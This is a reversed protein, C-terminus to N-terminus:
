QRRNLRARLENVRLEMSGIRQLLLENERRVRVRDAPSLQPDALTAENARQLGRMEEVTRVLVTLEVQLDERSPGAPNLQAPDIGAAELASIGDYMDEDGSRWRGRPEGAVSARPVRASGADSRDSWRGAARAHEIWAGREVEPEIPDSALREAVGSRALRLRWAEFMTELDLLGGGRLRQFSGLAVRVEMRREEGTAPDPRRVTLGITEGPDHSIIAARFETQTMPRGDVMEVVDGPRLARAADFGEIVGALAIGNEVTGGFQIGMAARPSNIFMERALTLLRARQEPSLTDTDRLVSLITALGIRDNEALAASAREREEHSPSDLQEILPTINLEALSRARTPNGPQAWAEGTGGTGIACLAAAFAIARATTASKM